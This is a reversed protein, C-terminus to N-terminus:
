NEYNRERKFSYLNHIKWYKRRLLYVIKKFEKALEKIIFHYDYNSGNHFVIPMKKSVSYKLNCISHAAGGYEGTYRCHDRVERYKKVKM